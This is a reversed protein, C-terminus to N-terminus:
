DLGGEPEPGPRLVYERVQALPIGHSEADNFLTLIGTAAAERALYQSIGLGATITYTKVEGDLFTVEVLSCDNRERAM